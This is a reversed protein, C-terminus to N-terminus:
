IWNFCTEHPKTIKLTAFIGKVLISM